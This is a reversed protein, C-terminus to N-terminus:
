LSGKVLPPTDDPTVKVFNQLCENVTGKSFAQWGRDKDYRYTYIMVRDPYAVYSARPHIAFREGPFARLGFVSGYRDNLDTITRTLLDSM